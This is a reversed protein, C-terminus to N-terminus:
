SSIWQGLLQATTTATRGGAISPEFGAAAAERQKPNHQM